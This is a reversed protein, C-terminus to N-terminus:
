YGQCWARWRSDHVEGVEDCCECGVGAGTCAPCQILSVVRDYSALVSRLAAKGSPTIRYFLNGRKHEYGSDSASAVFQMEIEGHKASRKMANPLSGNGREVDTLGILEALDEGSVWDFFRLARLARTRVTGLFEDLPAYSSFEKM